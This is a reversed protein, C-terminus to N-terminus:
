TAEHINKSRGENIWREWEALTLPVDCFEDGDVGLVLITGVLDHGCVNCNYPLGKLLGEEDCIIVADEAITVAEIYGGIVAQLQELSNGIRRLRGVPEHPRKIIAKM